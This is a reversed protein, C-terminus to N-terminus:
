RTDLHSSGLISARRSMLGQGVPAKSEGLFTLCQTGARDVSHGLTKVRETGGRTSPIPYFQVQM